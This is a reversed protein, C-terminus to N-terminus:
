SRKARKRARDYIRRREATLTRHEADIAALRERDEGTLHERWDAPNM